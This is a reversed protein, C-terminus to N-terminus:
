LVGCGSFRWTEPIQCKRDSIKSHVFRKIAIQYIRSKEFSCQRGFLDLCAKFQQWQKCLLGCHVCKFAYHTIHLPMKVQLSPLLLIYYEYTQKLHHIILQFFSVHRCLFHLWLSASTAQKRSSVCSYRQLNCDHTFLQWLPAACWKRKELHPFLINLKDIWNITLINFHHIKTKRWTKFLPQCQRMLLASCSQM